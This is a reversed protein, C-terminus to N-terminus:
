DLFTLTGMKSAREETNPVIEHWGPLKITAHDPHRVNGRGYVRASATMQNWGMNLGGEILEQKKKRSVGNPYLRHVHVTYGGKRVIESVIHPKSRGRTIPENMYIIEDSLDLYVPIFFWEGQRKFGKNRRKNRNKLKDNKKISNLALDPRLADKAQLVTSVRMDDPVGAVYWDREDHGILYRSTIYNIPTGKRNLIPEKRLLLLHRDKAKVDLVTLQDLIKDNDVVINFHSSKNKNTIVDLNFDSLNWHNRMSDFRVKAGMKNFNKKLLEKNM